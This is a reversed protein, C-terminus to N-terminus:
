FGIHEYWKNQIHKEVREKMQSIEGNYRMKSDEYLSHFDIKLEDNFIQFEDSLEILSNITDIFKDDQNNDQNDRNEFYEKIIPLYELTDMNKISNLVYFSNYELEVTNREGMNHCLYSFFLITNKLIDNELENATEDIKITKSLQIVIESFLDIQPILINLVMDHFNNNWDIDLESSVYSYTFKHKVIEKLFKICEKTKLSFKKDSIEKKIISLFLDVIDVIDDIFFVIKEEEENWFLNLLVIGSTDNTKKVYKIIFPLYEKLFYDYPISNYVYSNYLHRIIKSENKVLLNMGKKQLDDYDIKTIFNLLDKLIYSYKENYNKTEGLVENYKDMLQQEVEQKDSSSSGKQKKKSKYKNEKRKLKRINKNTFFFNKKIIM